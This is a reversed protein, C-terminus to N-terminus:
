SEEVPSVFIKGDGIQGRHATRLLAEITEKKIFDDNVLISLYVRQIDNTSYAVGHYVHSQKEHGM